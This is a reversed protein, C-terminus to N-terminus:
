RISGSQRGRSDRTVSRASRCCSVATRRTRATWTGAWAADPAAVDAAARDDHGGDAAVSHARRELAVRWCCGVRLGVPGRGDLLPRCPRCGGMRRATPDHVVGRLMPAGSTGCPWALPECAETPAIRPVLSAPPLFTTDRMGLPVFIRSATYAGSRRAASTSSSRASCSSTSTPTSSAIM